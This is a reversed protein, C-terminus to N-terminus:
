LFHWFGHTLWCRWIMIIKVLLGRYLLLFLRTEVAAGILIFYFHWGGRDLNKLRDRRYSLWVRFTVQVGVDVYKFWGLRSLRVGFFITGFFWIFFNDGHNRVLVERGRSLCVVLLWHLERNLLAPLLFVKVFFLQLHRIQLANDRFMTAFKSLEFLYKRLFLLLLFLNALVRESLVWNCGNISSDLSDRDASSFTCVSWLLLVTNLLNLGHSIREPYAHDLM